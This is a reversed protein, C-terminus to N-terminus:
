LAAVERQLQAELEEKRPLGWYVWKTPAHAPPALTADVFDAQSSEQM